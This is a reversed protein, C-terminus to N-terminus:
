PVFVQRRHYDLYKRQPLSFNRETAKRPISLGLLQMDAATMKSSVIVKGMDEFSILGRDFLLDVHPTLMLGNNGDLREQADVCARWPKIHSAILLNANTIGTLRCSNEILHVNARFVGQGRRAQILQTRVTATLETTINLQREIADDLVEAATGYLSALEFDGFVLDLDIGTKALILQFAPLTIQALYAGQNGNGSNPNIPSYKSELEAALEAIFEKPRVSNKLARWAVPLHWGDSSWADGAKGFEVPIQSPIAFELVQGIYSIRGKAFSLIYDGPSALRMNDYFINKSGDKKKQPSWLYEGSIEHAHTKKHNVWWYRKM